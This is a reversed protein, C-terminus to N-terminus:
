GTRLSAWIVSYKRSAMETDKGNYTYPTRPIQSGEKGAHDTHSKSCQIFIVLGEHGAAARGFLIHSDVADAHKCSNNHHLKDAKQSSDRHKTWKRFFLFCSAFLAATCARLAKELPILILNDKM